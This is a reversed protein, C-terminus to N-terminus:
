AGAGEECRNQAAELSKSIRIAPQPIFAPKDIDLRAFLRSLAPWPSPLLKRWSAQLAGATGADGRVPLILAGDLDLGRLRAHLKDLPDAGRSGALLTLAVVLFGSLKAVRIAELLTPEGAEREADFRFVFWLRPSARFEHIRRRLLKGDTHVFVERGSRTAVNVYAPIEPHDLPEADGIWVIRPLAEVAPFAHGNWAGESYPALRIVGPLRGRLQMGRAVVGLQFDSTFRLPFRM